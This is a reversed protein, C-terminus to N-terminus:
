HQTLIQLSYMKDLKCPNYLIDESYGNLHASHAAVRMNYTRGDALLQSILVTTDNVTQSSGIHDNGGSATGSGYYYVTYGTIVGMDEPPSWSIKLTPTMSSVQVAMVDVAPGAVTSSFATCQVTSQM